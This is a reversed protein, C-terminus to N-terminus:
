REPTTLDILDSEDTAKMTEGETQRKMFEMCSDMGKAIKNADHNVTDLVKDKKLISTPL